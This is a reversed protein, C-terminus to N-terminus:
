TWGWRHWQVRRRGWRHRRHRGRAAPWSRWRWGFQGGAGDGTGGAAGRAAEINYIRTMGDSGKGATFRNNFLEVKLSGRLDVLPRASTGARVVTFGDISLSDAGDSRIGRSAAEIVTVFTAPDRTWTAPDYGGHLNMQSRLRVIDPYTGGAVHIEAGSRPGAQIATNITAMPLERTGPNNDNGANSVYYAPGTPAPPPPPPPPPDTINGGGGGDGGCGTAGAAAILVTWILLTHVRRRESSGCM